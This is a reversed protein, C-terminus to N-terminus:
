QYGTYVVYIKDYVNFWEQNNKKFISNSIANETM